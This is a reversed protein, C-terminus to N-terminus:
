QDEKTDPREGFEWGELTNPITHFQCPPHPCVISPHVGGQPDIRHPLTGYLKCEPCNIIVFLRPEVVGGARQVGGRWACWHGPPTDWHDREGTPTFRKFTYAGTM